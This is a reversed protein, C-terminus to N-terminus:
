KLLADIGENILECYRAKGGSLKKTLALSAIGHLYGRFMDVKNDSGRPMLEKLIARLTQIETFDECATEADMVARYHSGNELAYQTYALAIKKLAEVPIEEEVRITQILGLMKQLWQKKLEKFLMEKNDFFEYITPVSYDIAGAIRRITVAHYGEKEIIQLTAELIAKKLSDKHRQRSQISGM